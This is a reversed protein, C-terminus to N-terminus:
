PTTLRASVIDKLRSLDQMTFKTTDVASHVKLEGIVKRTFIWSGKPIADM